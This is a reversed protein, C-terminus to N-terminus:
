PPSYLPSIQGLRNVENYDFTGVHLVPDVQSEYQIAGAPTPNSLYDAYGYLIDEYMKQTAPSKYIREAANTRSSISSKLRQKEPSKSFETQNYPSSSSKSANVSKSRSFGSRMTYRSPHPNVPSTPSISSSTKPKPRFILTKRVNAQLGAFNKNLSVENNRILVSENSFVDSVRNLSSMFNKM